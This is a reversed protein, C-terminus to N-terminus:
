RNGRSPARRTTTASRLPRVTVPGAVIPAQPRDFYLAEGRLPSTTFSVPLGAHPLPAGAPRPAAESPGPDPQTTAHEAGAPRGGPVHRLLDYAACVAAFRAAADPASSVDPHTLRALRRYARTMAAPSTDAAVGLLARAEDISRSM